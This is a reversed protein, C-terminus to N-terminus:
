GRRLSSLSSFIANYALVEVNVQAFRTDSTVNTIILGVLFVRYIKIGFTTSFAWRTVVARLTGRGLCSNFTGLTSLPKISAGLTLSITM